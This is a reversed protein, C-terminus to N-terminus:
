TNTETTETIQETYLKASSRMFAWVPVWGVVSLIMLIVAVIMSLERLAMGGFMALFVIGYWFVTNYENEGEWTGTEEIASARRLQDHRTGRFLLYNLLQRLAVGVVVVGVLSWGWPITAMLVTVALWVLFMLLLM